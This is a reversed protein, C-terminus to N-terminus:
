RADGSSVPKACSKSSSRQRRPSDRQASRPGTRQGRGELAGSDLLERIRWSLVADGTPVHSLVRAVVLTSSAWVGACAAILDDDHATLPLEIVQTRRLERFGDGRKAQLESWRKARADVNRVRRLNPWAALVGQPGVVGLAGYVASAESQFTSALAGRVRAGPEPSPVLVSPACLHAGGPAARAM